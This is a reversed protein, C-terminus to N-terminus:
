GDKDRGKTSLEKIIEKVAAIRDETGDFWFINGERKYKILEPFLEPYEEVIHIDGFFFGVKNCLFVMQKNKESFRGVKLEEKLAKLIARYCILKNTKNVKM